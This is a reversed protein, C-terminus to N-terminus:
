AAHSNGQAASKELWTKAKTPDRPGALGNLYFAALLYQAEGNGAEALRQLDSQATSFNKMRIATKVGELADATKWSSKVKAAPAAVALQAAPMALVALWLALWASRPAM